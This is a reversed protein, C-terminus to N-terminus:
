ASCPPNSKWGALFYDNGDVVRWDEGERAFALYFQSSYSSSGFPWAGGNFVTKRINVHRQAGLPQDSIVALSINSPSPYGGFNYPHSTGARALADANAPRCPLTPSLYGLARPLDNQRLALLYNHAVDTPLTDARYTAPQQFAVALLAAVVLALAGVVIALLFPDTSDLLRNLARRM